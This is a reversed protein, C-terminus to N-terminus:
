EELNPTGASDLLEDRPGEAQARELAEGMQRLAQRLVPTPMALNFRVHGGGETGFAAGDSCAVRARERFFEAPHDGLDLGRCDLWALYTGDPQRYRVGPLHRAVLESMVARNTDLYDIIDDLWARGHRYASTTATVALHGVQHEAMFSVDGWRDLDLDNSFIIQACKMGSMNWAKTAATLTLTHNAAVTSISAYPVHEHDPFVIPAHIEDSYVRASHADVVEALDHMENRSYVKGIPNHPNCFILLGGGSALATDIGHLDLKWGEASCIMPVEIIERGLSRPVKLFPMHGPTPVVVPSGPASFHEIAMVLGTLVDPLPRIRSSPVEWGYSDALWGSCARSM